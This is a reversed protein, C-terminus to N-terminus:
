ETWKRTARLLAECLQSPSAQYLMFSCDSSKLRCPLPVRHGFCFERNLLRVFRDFGRKPQKQILPIIADYSTLYSPVAYHAPNPYDPYNPKVGYVDGDDRGWGSSIDTWGDLEALAKIQNNTEM